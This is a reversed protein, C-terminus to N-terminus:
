VYLLVRNTCARTLVYVRESEWHHVDCKPYIASEISRVKNYTSKKM